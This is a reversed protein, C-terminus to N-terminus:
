FNYPATVCTFGNTIYLADNEGQKQLNTQELEQVTKSDRTTRKPTNGTAKRHHVLLTVIRLFLGSQYSGCLLTTKRVLLLLGM